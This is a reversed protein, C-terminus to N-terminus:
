VLDVLRWDKDIQVDTVAHEKDVHNLALGIDDMSMKGKNRATNAFTHRAWYFTVSHIGTIKRIVQM